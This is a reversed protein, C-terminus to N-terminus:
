TLMANKIIELNKKKLLTVNKHYRWGTPITLFIPLNKEIDKVQSHILGGNILREMSKDINEESVLNFIDKNFAVV